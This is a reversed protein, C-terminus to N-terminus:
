NTFYDPTFTVDTNVICLLDLTAARIGKNCTSSFGLNVDNRIVKINPYTNELFAVSDDTSCDDVVIIENHITGIAELLSPINKELLHRGNYNPLVTSISHTM